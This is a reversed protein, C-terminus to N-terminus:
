GQAQEFEGFQRIQKIKKGNGDLAPAQKLCYPTFIEGERNIGLIDHRFNPRSSALLKEFDLPTRKHCATLDDMLTIFDGKLFITLNEEIARSAIKLILERNKEQIRSM